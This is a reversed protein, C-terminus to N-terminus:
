APPTPPGFSGGARPPPATKGTPRLNEPHHALPATPPDLANVSGANTRARAVEREALM